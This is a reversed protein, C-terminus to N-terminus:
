MAVEGTPIHGRIKVARRLSSNQADIVNTTNIIKQVAVALALGALSEPL